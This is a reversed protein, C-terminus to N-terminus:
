RKVALYVGVLQSEMAFRKEINSYLYMTVDLPDTVSKKVHFQFV